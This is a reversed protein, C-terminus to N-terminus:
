TNNTMQMLRHLDVQANELMQTRNCSDATLFAPNGNAFVLYEFGPQFTVGCKNDGAPTYLVVTDRQADEGYKFKKLVTMKVEKYGPKLPPDRQELVRGVIVFSAKKFASNLAPRAACECAFASATQGLMLALCTVIPLLLNKQAIM